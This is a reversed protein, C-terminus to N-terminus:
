EENLIMLLIIQKECTSYHKSIYALLIEKEKTYLINVAFTSNNKEFRKWDEKKSPYNIREWNYKNMFPEINSVRELYSEIEKYNNCIITAAYQFCKKDEKKLNIKTEKNKYGTCLIM